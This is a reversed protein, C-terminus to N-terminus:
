APHQGSTGDEKEKKGAEPVDIRALREGREEVAEAVKEKYWQHFCKRWKDTRYQFVTIKWLRNDMHGLEDMVNEKISRCTMM